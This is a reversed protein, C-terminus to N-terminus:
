PAGDRGGGRTLATGPAALARVREAVRALEDPPPHEPVRWPAGLEVALGDRLLLRVVADLDRSRTLARLWRRRPPLRYVALARGLRVLEVMMTVSDSTVVFRDALGLLARYPNDPDDPRWRYLPTGAPLEAALADAVHAPTRRSTCVYLSGETAARLARRALDRAVGADFRVPKTPGGVLLATLPRPLASLRPRWATAAEEVARADIRMLPLGVRVVNRRAPVRYQASAVVLDFRGLRRRPKGILVLRTRGGSRARVWLAASSLRRGVTVLFEPWPPELADSRALDVHDLTARVPPKGLVWEPRMRLQRVEYPWGLADALVRAQANDGPKEGLLLWTRPGGMPSAAPAPEVDQM